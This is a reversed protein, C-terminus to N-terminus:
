FSVDRKISIDPSVPNFGDMSSKASAIWGNDKWVIEAYDDPRFRATVSGDEDIERDYEFIMDEQDSIVVSYKADDLYPIVGFLKGVKRSIKLTREEQSAELSASMAESEYEVVISGKAEGFDYRPKIELSGKRGLINTDSFKDLEAYVVDLGGDKSVTGDVGLSLDIDENLVDLEIDASSRTNVDMEGKASLKWGNGSNFIAKGWATRESGEKTSVAARVGYDVDVGNVETSTAWDITPDLSEASDLFKGDKVSILFRLQKARKIAEFPNRRAFATGVAVLFISISVKM